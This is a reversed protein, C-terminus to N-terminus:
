PKTAIVAYNGYNSLNNDIRWAKPVPSQYVTKIETFGQEALCFELWYANVPRVHTEDLWFHSMAFPSLPNVTELIVRGGSVLMEDCKQILHKIAEPPMHEVVQLATVLGVSAVDVTNAGEFLDKCQVNLGKGAAIQCQVSNSDFGVGSWGADSLIKLLEGRGCGLDVVSRVVNAPLYDLYIRQNQAVAGTEYYISEFAAYRMADSRHQMPDPVPLHKIEMVLSTPISEDLHRTFQVVREHAEHSVIQLQNLREAAVKQAQVVEGLQISQGLALAAHQQDNAELAAIRQTWKPLLYCLVREIFNRM